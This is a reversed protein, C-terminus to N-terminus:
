PMRMGCKGQTCVPPDAGCNWVPGTAATEQSLVQAEAEYKMLDAVNIASSACRCASCFSGLFVSACDSAQTCSVDFDTIALTHSAADCGGGGTSTSGGGGTGPAGGGGGGTSATGSSGTASTAAGDVVVKGGCAAGACALTILLVSPLASPRNM